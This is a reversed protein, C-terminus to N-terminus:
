RGALGVLDVKFPNVLFSESLYQLFAVLDGQQWNVSLKGNELKSLDLLQNILRLLNQSNRKILTLSRNLLSKEQANLSPWSNSDLQDTMGMIVTLPTRFEHTINTYLRTKLSDLEKLRRNDAQELLRKIQYRRILLLISGVIGLYILYAWHTRFLPPAVKIIISIGEENWVGDNNSAKVRFNYTGEEVKTYTAINRGPPVQIWEEDYGELIYAYRNLEPHSYNLASFGISFYNDQHKLKLEDLYNLNRSLEQPENNVSFSTFVIPPPTYNFTGKLPNFVYFGNTKGIFIDGNNLLRM